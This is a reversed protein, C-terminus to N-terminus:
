AERTARHRKPDYCGFCPLVDGDPGECRADGHPCAEAPEDEELLERLTTGHRPPPSGDARKEVLAAGMVTPGGITALAVKHKCDYDERYMDAPCDCEAPVAVGDRIEIGVTYAHDDKLYGYSANTVRVLHPGVVTFEWDEWAVRKATMAGFNLYEVASKQRNDANTEMAERM